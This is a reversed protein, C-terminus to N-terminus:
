PKSVNWKLSSFFFRLFTLLFNRKQFVLSLSLSSRSCQRQIQHYKSQSNNLIKMAQFKASPLMLCVCVGAWENASPSGKIFRLSHCHSPLAQRFKETSSLNFQWFFNFKRDMRGALRERVKFSLSSLHISLYFRISFTRFFPSNPIKSVNANSLSIWTAIGRALSIQCSWNFVRSFKM